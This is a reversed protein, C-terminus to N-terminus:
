PVTHRETPEAANKLGNQFVTKEKKRVKKPLFGSTLDSTKSFPNDIIGQLNVTRLHRQLRFFANKRGNVVYKM